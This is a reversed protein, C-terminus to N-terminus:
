DLLNKIKMTNRVFSDHDEGKDMAAFIMRKSSLPATVYKLDGRETMNCNVKGLDKDFDETMRTQLATEMFLMEKKKNNMGLFGENFVHSAKGNKNIICAFKLGNTSEAINGFHTRIEPSNYVANMQSSNTVVPYIMEYALM